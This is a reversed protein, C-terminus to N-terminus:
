TVGNLCKDNEDWHFFLEVSRSRPNKRKVENIVNSINIAARWMSIIIVGHM